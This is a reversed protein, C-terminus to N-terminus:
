PASVPAKAHYLFIDEMGASKFRGEPNEIEATFWGTHFISGGPAAAVAGTSAYLNSGFARAWRPAGSPDLLAIFPNQSGKLGELKAGFIPGNFVNGGLAISGDENISVSIGEEGKPDPTNFTKAWQVKGETDFSAVFAGPASVTVPVGDISAKSSLRGTAVVRGDRVALDRVFDNATGGFTKAWRFGGAADFSSIYIDGQDSVFPTAGGLTSEGTFQGAVYVRGEGDIGVATADDDGPGGFSKAWLLNGSTNFSAIFADSGGVATLETKEIMMSGNFAGVVFMTDDPGVAIKNGIDGQTGGFRISWRLRGTSVLKMLAVDTGGASKVPGAGFDVQDQFNALVFVDSRRGVAVSLGEDIGESGFAKSWRFMGGQTFTAVFIDQNGKSSHVQGGLTLDGSFSGTLALIGNDTLAMARGLQTTDSGFQKQWSPVEVPGLDCGVAPDICNAPDVTASLCIGDVCTQDSPCAVGACVQRMPVPVHFPTRPVFRMARRAVICDPGLEPGVCKEVDGGLSTVVKFAFPATDDKDPYLVITGIDGNSECLATTTDLSGKEITGLLGANIGTGTVTTCEADTSIEVIAETPEQCGLSGGLSTGLVLM